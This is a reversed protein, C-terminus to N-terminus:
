GSQVEKMLERFQKEMDLRLNEAIERLEELPRIKLRAIEGRIPLDLIRHLAIGKKVSENILRYFDLIIRLLLRTKELDSYTDVPHYAHQALFDERIMRAVELIARQEDSLADPGVLQVIEKLEEERQLIYMCERIMDSWEPDLKRRFWADLDDRYLSYSRLWNVAPFHRRRALEEDLAWFVRVIRLTNVTVPESFDGGPPSVAGIISISGTRMPRGLAEVKGAREYFEALRSALYPPYGEEGPIEGLRGSIERLAEAWRSTSDAMLAVNYGMDRFYEAITVGTYISAERAAIPMNSVNAILVTREMLPRGTRPDTLKPFDELVEAMENGREGCGVYIVIDASAWKALQHQMITKGTGFGGPIAATGGLALPFLTDLVRQGTILPEEVPLKRVYPRPKRVPWRQMMSLGVEGRETELYVVTDTVRYEGEEVRRVVGKIGIPAMVKHEVMYTEQVVGIIDGESVVDGVRVTPKFFWKRSRDLSEVVVGRSIFNGALIQLRTLPRQVGDFIHGVLGPGLEVSLPEGTAVVPEGPKLGSTEEYVQITCRDGEVRIVEGILGLEGVRVVEYMKVGSVGEAEVVPGAIRVIRGRREM